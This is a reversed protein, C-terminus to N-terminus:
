KNDSNNKYLYTALGGTIPSKYFNLKDSYLNIFFVGTGLNEKGQKESSFDYWSMNRNKLIELYEFFNSPLNQAYDHIILEASEKNIDYNLFIKKNEDRNNGHQYSNLIGEYFATYLSPSFGFSECKEFLNDVKKRIVYKPNEDRFDIIGYNFGNLVPLIELSSVPIKENNINKVVM